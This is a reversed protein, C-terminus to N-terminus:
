KRREPRIKWVTQLAAPVIVLLGMVGAVGYYLKFDSPLNMWHLFRDLLGISIALVLGSVAIKWTLTM